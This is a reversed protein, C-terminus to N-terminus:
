GEITPLLEEVMLKYKAISTWPDLKSDETSPNKHPQYVQGTSVEIYRKVGTRAAERACNLSM